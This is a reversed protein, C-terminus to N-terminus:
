AIWESNQLVIRYGDRDEYSRGRIDWYPNFSAVPRFGARVMSACAARWETTSPIYFVLLDEATPAPRVPHNRCCTFEFHYSADRAGLMVGDFGAHDEFRDLIQLGLGRCYM